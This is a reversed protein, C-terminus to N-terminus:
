SGDTASQEVSTQRQSLLYGILDYFEAETILDPVNAPMPSLGGSAQEDIEDLPIRIEKGEADALRLVNGETGLVLGSLARGDTTTLLTLRFAQDVNRSPDLVDETLRGVGRNGIGDLDPGIKAGEGGIRHCAACVKKFVERGRNPDVDSGGSSRSFGERRAAILKVIREDEPPLGATLESIRKQADPVKAALLRSTIGGETLLRPSAKGQGVADLLAAGSDKGSALATAIALALHEPARALQEVLVTRSAENNINGLAAAARSRLAKPEEAAALIDELLAISETPGVAVCADLAFPRLPAFPSDASAVRALKEHLRRVRFESALRIGTRVEATSQSDLLQDGLQHAWAVIHEPLEAQREEAVRRLSRLVGAQRTPTAHDKSREAFRYVDELRAEEAFRAAHHVLEGFRDADFTGASLRALTFQASEENHVGLNVEALHMARAPNEISESPIAAYLGPSALHDRLAIRMVHILHTDEAPTEAWLELLPAMNAVNPHRGLADAAARRVFPDADQLQKRLLNWQPEDLQEREALMRVLHVRVVRQPDDALRRVLADDLAGIRELVWLGHARQWRHSAGTILRRLPEAAAEGFRDVIENTALTRVMLNADALHDLLGDLNLATLDTMPQPRVDGDEGVYVIRWIRGRERDRRPHTLPVEYHGIISNYFDAIYLAGDPGLRVDVPRFWPDDCAVFDPQEVAQYTSGHAALRDHNVRGTVPNGIFVTDHYERPFHDAAYYVVGAIGTSGHSHAIMDPGFGLGDHPKGFSPYYAGRLLMYLPKSHCDSSYLNGLPDFALGFPNVQGHTFYEIHSGDVRFRYTNGSNMTIPEEDSGQITSTNSFGHCAYIWGDIWRRFSNTMGHTDRHGFTQYIPERREAKGDGDDDYFRHIDPISYGIAGGPVPTIGMPINLCEAFTSVQDFRGDGNTDTLIGIRDRKPAAEDAPFPYEISQTVLLRGRADFSLNIPKRVEPESAVLQIEFGPPLHFTKQQEQPSLPETPAVLYIKPPPVDRQEAASGPPGLLLLSLALTQGIM